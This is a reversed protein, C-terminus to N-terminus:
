MLDDQVYDGERLRNRITQDSLLRGYRGITTRTTIRASLYRDRLRTLRTYRDQQRATVRRKPTRPLDNVSGNQQKKKSNGSLDQFLKTIETSM